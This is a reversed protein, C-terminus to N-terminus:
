ARPEWHAWLTPLAPVLTATPAPLALSLELPCYDSLMLLADDVSIGTVWSAVVQFAIAYDVVSKASELSSRSLSTAQRSLPTTNSLLLLGQYQLLSLLAQGYANFVTDTSM